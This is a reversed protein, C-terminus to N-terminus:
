ILRDAAMLRSSRQMKTLRGVAGPELRDHRIAVTRALV